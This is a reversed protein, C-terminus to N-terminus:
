ITENALKIHSITRRRLEDVQSKTIVECPVDWHISVWDDIKLQEIDAEAGLSRTIRRAVPQGLALKGHQLLLPESIVTIYPGDIKTVQGWSIRCADM